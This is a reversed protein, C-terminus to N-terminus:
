TKKRHTNNEPDHPYTRNHWGSHTGRYHMWASYLTMGMFLSATIPMLTSELIKRKYAKITPWYTFAMLAWSLGAISMLLWKHTLAGYLFCLVPLIYILFMGSIALILRFYSYNLQIFATRSVMKGLDKFKASERLSLSDPGHGLWIKFGQAKVTEALACDDILRDKIAHFGGIAELADRRILICGGAAGAESRKPNNVAKFPYLLQFYYIFAPIIIREWIGKCNLTVMLSVLALDKKQAFKVLRSLTHPKHYIDADSLWYYDPPTRAANKHDFGSQLAWLKGSWKKPLPAAQIIDIVHSRNITQATQAAIESTNDESADDILVSQFEGKYSQKLISSFSQAILAAENRAPTLSTITPWPQIPTSDHPPLFERRRWFGHYAFTLYLWIALSLSILATLILDM